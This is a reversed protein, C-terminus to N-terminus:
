VLNSLFSLKRPRRIKKRLPANKEVAELHRQITSKKKKTISMLVEQLGKKSQDSISALSTVVNRVESESIKQKKLTFKPGWTPDCVKQKFSKRRIRCRQTQKEKSLQKRYSIGKKSKKARAKALASQQKKSRKM